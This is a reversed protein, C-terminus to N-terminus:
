FFNYVQQSSNRRRSCNYVQLNFVRYEKFMSQSHYPSSRGPLFNIEKQTRVPFFRLWAL